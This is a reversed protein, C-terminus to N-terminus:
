VALNLGELLYEAEEPRAGEGFMFGAGLESYEIAMLSPMRSRLYNITMVAFEFQEREIEGQLISALAQADGDICGDIGKRKAKREKLDREVVQILVELDDSSVASLRTELKRGYLNIYFNSEPLGTDKKVKTM